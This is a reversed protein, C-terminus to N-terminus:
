CHQGRRAPRGARYLFRIRPLIIGAHPEAFIRVTKEASDPVRKSSQRM